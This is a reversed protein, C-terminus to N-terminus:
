PKPTLIASFEPEDVTGYWASFNLLIRGDNEIRAPAPRDYWDIRWQPFDPPYDILARLDHPQYSGDSDRTWIVLDYKCGGVITGADNIDFAQCAANPLDAPRPLAVKGGAITWVYAQNYDDRGVVQGASNLGTVDTVERRSYRAGREADWVLILYSEVGASNDQTIAALQGLGNIAVASAEVGGFENGLPFQMGAAESWVFPKITWAGNSAWLTFTGAVEGRNNVDVAYSDAGAPLLSVLDIKTGDRRIVEARFGSTEYGPKIQTPEVQVWGVALGDDNVAALSGFERGGPADPITKPRSGAFQRYSIRDADQDYKWTRLKYGVVDNHVNLALPQFSPPAEIRQITYRPPDEARAAGAAAALCLLAAATRHLNM